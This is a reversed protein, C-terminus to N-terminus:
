NHDGGTRSEVHLGRVPHGGFRRMGHSFAERKRHGMVNPVPNERVSAFRVKARSEFFDYRPHPVIHAPEPAVSALQVM